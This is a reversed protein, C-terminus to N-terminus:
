LAHLLRCEAVNLRRACMGRLYVCVCVYVYMWGQRWEDLGDQLKGHGEM